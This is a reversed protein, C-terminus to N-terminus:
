CTGPEYYAVSQRNVDITQSPILVFSVTVPIQAWVKVVCTNAALGAPTAPVPATAADLSCSSSLVVTSPTRVLQACVMSTTIVTAEGPVNLFTLDVTAQQVTTAWSGTTPTTAGFRAGEHVGSALGLVRNYALGGTIIGSLLAVLLPVVLAFEVAIAGTEV